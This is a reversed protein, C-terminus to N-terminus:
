ADVLRNIAYQVNRRGTKSMERKLNTEGHRLWELPDKGALAEVKDVLGQQRCLLRLPALSKDGPPSGHVSACEELLMMASGLQGRRSYYEIMSGYSLSDLNRGADEIQQKFALARPLRHNRILM